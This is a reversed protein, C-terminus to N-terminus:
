SSASNPGRSGHSHAPGCAGEPIKPFDAGKDTAVIRCRSPTPDVKELVAGFLGGAYRACAADYRLKLSFFYALNKELPIPDDIKQTGTLYDDHRDKFTM